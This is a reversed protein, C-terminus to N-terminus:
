LLLYITVNDKPQIWSTGFYFIAFKNEEKSFVLDYFQKDNNAM